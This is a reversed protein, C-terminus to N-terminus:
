NLINNLKVHSPSASPQRVTPVCFDQNSKTGRIIEQEINTPKINTNKALVGTGYLLYLSFSKLSSEKKMM